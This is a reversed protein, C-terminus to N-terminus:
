VSTDLHVTLLVYFGLVHLNIINKWANTYAVQDITPHAQYVDQRAAWIFRVIAYPLARVPLEIITAILFDCCTGNWPPCSQRKVVAQLSSACRLVHIHASEWPRCDRREWGICYTFARQKHYHPMAGIHQSYKVKRHKKYYCCPRV